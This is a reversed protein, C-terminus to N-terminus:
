IDLVKNRVKRARNRIAAEKATNTRSFCNLADFKISRDLEPSNALVQLGRQAALRVFYVIFGIRDNDAFEAASNSGLGKELGLADCLTCLWEIVFDLWLDPPRGRKIKLKARLEPCYGYICDEIFREIWYDLLRRLGELGCWTREVIGSAPHNPWDDWRAEREPYYIKFARFPLQHLQPIETELVNISHIRGDFYGIIKQLESETLTEAKAIYLFGHNPPGARLENAYEEPAYTSIDFVFFKIVDIDDGLYTVHGELEAGAAFWEAKLQQISKPQSLDHYTFM